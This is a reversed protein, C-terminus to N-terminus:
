ESAEVEMAAASDGETKDEAAAKDLDEKTLNFAALLDDGTKDKIIDALTKCMLHLLTNVNLFNAALILDFMM